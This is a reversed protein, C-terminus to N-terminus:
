NIKRGLKCHQKYGTDIGFKKIVEVIKYDGNKAPNKNNVIRATDGHSVSPAGFTSISGTAGKNWLNPLWKRLIDSLQEYTLNPVKYTNVAGAIKGGDSELTEAIKIASNETNDVYYAYLVIVSGNEQESVGKAIINGNVDNKFDLKDSGLPVNKYTDFEIISNESTDSLIEGYLTKGRFYFFYKFNKSLTDLVDMSTAGSPISLKGIFSDQVIKAGDYIYSIVENINVSDFVKQQLSNRKLKFSNDECEIVAPSDLNVSSIYGEFETYLNPFYGLEIKIPDGVIFLNSFEKYPNTYLSNKAKLPLVIRATDTLDNRSAKIEVSNVYRFSQKETLTQRDYVTIRCDLSLLAM